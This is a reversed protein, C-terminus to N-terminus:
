ADPPAVFDPFSAKAEEVSISVAYRLTELWLTGCVKRRKLFEPGQPVVALREFRDFPPVYGIACRDCPHPGSM